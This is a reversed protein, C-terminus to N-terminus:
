IEALGNQTISLDGCASEEHSDLYYIKDISERFINCSIPEMTLMSNAFNQHIPQFRRWNMRLSPARGICYGQLISQYSMNDRNEGLIQV